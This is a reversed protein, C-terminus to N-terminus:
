SKGKGKTRELWLQLAERIAQSQAGRRNGYLEVVRIRFDKYLDDPVEVMFRAM